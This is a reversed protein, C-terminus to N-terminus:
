ENPKGKAFFVNITFKAWLPPIVVLLLFSIIGLHEVLFTMISVPLIFYSFLEHAGEYFIMKRRYSFSTSLIMWITYFIGMTCLIYLVIPIPFDYLQYHVYGYIVPLIGIVIYTLKIVYAYLIFKKSVLLKDDEARVGFYIPTTKLGSKKDYKLDKINASIGINFVYKIGALLSIILSLNSISDAVCIAGFIGGLFATIGAVYEMGPVNKSYKNYISILLVSLAFVILSSIKPFFILTLAIPILFSLIWSFLAAEKSIIGSALPRHVVYDSKKDVEIDFYDNQIMFAIHVFIGIIFLILLRFLNFENNCIAGLIIIIPTLYAAYPRTLQIYGTLKKRM